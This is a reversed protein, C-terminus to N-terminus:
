ILHIRTSHLECSGNDKKSLCELFMLFPYIFLLYLYKFIKGGIGIYRDLVYPVKILMASLYDFYNGNYSLDIINFGNDKLYKEFFYKSFGNYFYYPAYHTFSSVPVTIILIGSERLIRSFEKIAYIPEPIHEFVEVCMIADFSRDDVPIKTIDSIIDLKSNDRIDTQLGERNGKGNYGGFDQSIYKLHNCYKKYQLEGAGADLISSNKPLESLVKKLWKDRCIKNNKKYLNFITM